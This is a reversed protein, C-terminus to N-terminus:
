GASPCQAFFPDSGQAVSRLKSNQTPFRGAFCAFLRSFNFLFITQDFSPVHDRAHRTHSASRRTLIARRSADKKGEEIMSRPLDLCNALLTFGSQYAFRLLFVSSSFSNSYSTSHSLPTVSWFSRGRFFAFTPSLHTGHGCLCNLVRFEFGKLRFTRSQSYLFLINRTRERVM